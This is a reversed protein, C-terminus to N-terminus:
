CGLTLSDTDTLKSHLKVLGTGPQISSDPSRVWERRDGATGLERAVQWETPEALGERVTSQGHHASSKSGASTVLGPPLGPPSLICGWTQVSTREYKAGGEVFLLGGAVCDRCMWCRCLWFRYDAELAGLVVSGGATGDDPESLASDVAHPRWLTAHGQEAPLRFNRVVAKLRSGPSASRGGVLRRPGWPVHLVAICSQM